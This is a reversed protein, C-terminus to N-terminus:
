AWSSELVQMPCPLSHKAAALRAKSCHAMNSRPQTRMALGFAKITAPLDYGYFRVRESEPREIEAPDYVDSIGFATETEEVGRGFHMDLLALLPEQNLEILFGALDIVFQFSNREWAARKRAKSKWHGAGELVFEGPARPVTM